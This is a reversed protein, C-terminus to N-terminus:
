HYDCGSLMDNILRVPLVLFLYEDGEPPLVKIPSLAGSIEIRVEDTEAARLADLLYKNNFGMEVSEGDITCAIEDSFKGISTSCSIKISGEKDFVVRLPSRLRDTILLSAREVSDMFLRKSIVVTSTGNQPISKRYDLFEGELLRSIISYGGIRFVIHRGSVTLSATEGADDKAMKSLESLVKGPVVFSLSRGDQLPAKRLALRYGDVSVVCLSGEGLDFLSGMHVPKTDTAAVAFLTQDIMSKLTGQALEVAEGSEVSPLEPFEDAPIGLITFETIGCTIETLYKDGVAVTIEEGAMKRIMDAFLRASLVIEGEQLVAAEVTTTIGAEMDYGCLTLGGERATIKIGELAPISSKAPIMRSINMVAESLVNKDCTFKM